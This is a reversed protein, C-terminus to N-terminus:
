LFPFRVDLTDSRRFQMSRFASLWVAGEYGREIRSLEDAIRPLDNGLNELDSTEPSFYHTPYTPGTFHLHVHSIHPSTSPKLTSFATHIYHLPGQTWTWRLGLTVTRLRPFKSFDFSRQLSEQGGVSTFLTLTGISSSTLGPSRFPHPKGSHTSCSYSLDVLTKCCAEALRVTQLLCPFDVYIYIKTFHLGTPVELLKESVTYKDRLQSEGGFRGRLGTGLGLSPGMTATGSLILDNLNPLHLMIDRMRVLDIHEAEIALSTVSQSLRMYLSVLRSPLMM